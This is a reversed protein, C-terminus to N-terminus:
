VPNKFEGESRTYLAIQEWEYTYWLTRILSLDKDRPEAAWVRGARDQVAIHPFPHASPNWRLVFTGGEFFWYKIAAPLCNGKPM